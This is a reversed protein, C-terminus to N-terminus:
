WVLYDCVSRLLSSSQGSTKSFPILSIFNKEGFVEGVLMRVLHVNIDSIQVFM